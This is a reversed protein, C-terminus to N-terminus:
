KAKYNQKPNGEADRVLDKTAKVEGPQLQGPPAPTQEEAAYFCSGSLLVGALLLASVKKFLKMFVGGTFFYFPHDFVEIVWARIM